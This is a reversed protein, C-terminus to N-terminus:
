PTLPFAARQRADASSGPPVYSKVPVVATPADDDDDYRGQTAECTQLFRQLIHEPPNSGDLYYMDHHSIGANTFRKENYYKKNLRVVACIGKSAFYPILDDPTTTHYGAPAGQRSDHPGAFALFRGGVIWNMDGNEVKEYTEYEDIDFNDFSFCGIQRAKQIGRLVDLTTLHFSDITPSADHWPAVPPSVNLFPKIADEPTKGLYLMSYAAMLYIANARKHMAQQSYYVIVCGALAKDTLKASMRHCFRYLCGLSLPGFDLFFPYYALEDDMTFWHERTNADFGAQAGGRMTLRRPQNSSCYYLRDRIIEAEM